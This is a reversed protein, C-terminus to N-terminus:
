FVSIFFRLFLQFFVFSDFHSFSVVVLSVFSFSLLVLSRSLSLYMYIALGKSFIFWAFCVCVLRNNNIAVEGGGVDGCVKWGVAAGDTQGICWGRSSM